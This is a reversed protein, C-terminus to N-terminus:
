LQGGSLATSRRPQQQTGAGAATSRYTRGGPREAAFGGCKASTTSRHSLRVSLRVSPRGVM